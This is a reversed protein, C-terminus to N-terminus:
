EVVLYFLVFWVKCVVLLMEYDFMEVIDFLLLQFFDILMVSM